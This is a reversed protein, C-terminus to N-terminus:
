ELNLCSKKESGMDHLEAKKQNLRQGEIAIVVGALVVLGMGFLSIADPFQEFVIWGLLAAWVLQLYSLPALLSAPAQRFAWTYAYHGLCGALGLGLFLAFDLTTPSPGQWNWPLLLSFFLTGSVASYFLLTMATETAALLRSLLQYLCSGLAALLVLFVGIGDLVGGPHAVFVVGILGLLGAATRLRGIREHLFLRACVLVMIPSLYLISTAEALPMRRLAFILCFSILVQSAGRLWVLGTRQTQVLRRGHLPALFASMVLLHIAFRVWAVLPVPYHQTLFKFSADMGAFILLALIFSAIGLLPHSSASKMKRSLPAIPM